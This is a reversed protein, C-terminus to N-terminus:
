SALKERIQENLKAIKRRLQYLRESANDSVKEDSLIKSLIEKELYQDCYLTEALSPILSVAGDYDDSYANRIIRSSRLLRAARILEALSLLSGKEARDLEDSPEDFFDISPTGFTFLLIYAEETMKLVKEAEELSASPKYESVLRKTGKLVAYEAVLALVKDYELTKLVKEDM